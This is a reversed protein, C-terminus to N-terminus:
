VVYKIIENLAQVQNNKYAIDVATQTDISKNGDSWQCIKYFIPYQHDIKSTSSETLLAKICRSDFSLITVFNALDLELFSKFFISTDPLSEILNAMDDQSSCCFIGQILFIEWISM